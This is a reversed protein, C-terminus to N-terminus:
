TQVPETDPPIIDLPQDDGPLPLLCGIGRAEAFAAESRRALDIVGAAAGSPEGGPV